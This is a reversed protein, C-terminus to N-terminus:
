IPKKAALRACNCGKEVLSHGIWTLATVVVSIAIHAGTGFTPSSCVCTNGWRMKLGARRGDGDCQFCTATTSLTRTKLATVIGGQAVYM